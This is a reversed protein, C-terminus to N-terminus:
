SPRIGWADFFEQSRKEETADAEKKLIPELKGYIEEIRREWGDIDPRYTILRNIQHYYVKRPASILGWIISLNPGYDDWIIDLLGDESDYVHYAGHSKQTTIGLKRAIEVAKPYIKKNEAEHERQKRIEDRTDL